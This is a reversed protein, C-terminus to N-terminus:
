PAAKGRFIRRLQISIRQVGHEVTFAADSFRPGHLRVPADNSFGIAERPVGLFNQHVVGEDTEDHFAQIAYEGPAVDAIKVVTSGPKAEAAGSYPCAPKLFTEKTCLDVRVHGRADGVGSVAVEVVAAHAGGAAIALIALVPLSLSPRAKPL